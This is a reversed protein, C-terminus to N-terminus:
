GFLIVKVNNPFNKALLQFGTQIVLLGCLAESYSDKKPKCTIVAKGEELQITPKRKLKGKTHMDLVFQGATYTLISAASCILDKGAVDAGAHDYITIVLTKKDDTYDFRAKIM